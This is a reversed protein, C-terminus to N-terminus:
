RHCAANGPWGGRRRLAELLMELLEPHMSAAAIASAAESAQRAELRGVWERLPGPLQRRGEFPEVDRWDPRDARGSKHAGFHGLVAVCQQGGRRAQCRGTFALSPRQLM